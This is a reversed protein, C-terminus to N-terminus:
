NDYIKENTILEILIKKLHESDIQNILNHNLNPSFTTSTWVVNYDHENAIKDIFKVVKGKTRSTLILYECKKEILEIVRKIFKKLTEDGPDSESIFGILKELFIITEYIDSNKNKLNGGLLEYFLRLTSTKGENARGYVVIITKSMKKLIVM